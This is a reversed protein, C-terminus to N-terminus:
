PTSTVRDRLYVPVAQAPEVSAGSAFAARALHAVDRAAPYNESRVAVPTFGLRRTLVGRYPGWGPGAAIWHGSEALPVRDPPAVCDPRLPRMCGEGDLRYTGWYVEGMRADLACLVSGAGCERHAGQALAALTSVPAVRLGRAYGIGQIVGAAIRLGTFSGPGCGFALGQVEPLTLEAARLVSEIMALILESHRQPALEYRETVVGDRLVAASCAETSTDIALLNM